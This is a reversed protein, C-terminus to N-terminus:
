KIKQSLLNTKIDKETNLIPAINKETKYKTRKEYM